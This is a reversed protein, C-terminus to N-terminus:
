QGSKKTLGTQRDLPGRMEELCRRSERPKMGSFRDGADIWDDWRDYFRWQSLDGLRFPEINTPEGDLFSYLQVMLVEGLRAVVKGQRFDAVARGHWEGGGDRHDLYSTVPEVLKFGTETTAIHCWWGVPPDVAGLRPEITPMVDPAPSCSSTARGVVNHLPNEAKIAALEAALAAARDEFHELRTSAISAWWAKDERHQALRAFPQCSIGVYLLRDEADFFRYLTTISM